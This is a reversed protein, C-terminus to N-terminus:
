APPADLLALFAAPAVIAVGAYRGLRLLQTDGTVLYDAGSGVAAALILDDEPHTAVGHVALTPTVLRARERVLALNAAAEAPSLHRRSYPAELTHSLEALIHESTALTFRGARWAALLRGPPPGPRVFGSALVNTDLVVVIV